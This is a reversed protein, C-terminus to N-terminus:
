LFWGIAISPADAVLHHELVRTRGVRGVRAAAEPWRLPAPRGGAHRATFGISEDEADAWLHVVRQARSDLYIQVTNGAADRFLRTQYGAYAAADDLGPEPFTLVPRISTMPAALLALLVVAALSM